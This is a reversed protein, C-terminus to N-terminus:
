LAFDFRDFETKAQGVRPSDFADFATKPKRTRVAYRGEREQSLEGIMGVGRDAPDGPSDSQGSDPEQGEQSPPWPELLSSPDDGAIALLIASSPEPVSSSFVLDQPRNMGASAFVGLDTGSPSFEHITNNGLNAM